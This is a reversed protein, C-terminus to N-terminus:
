RLLEYILRGFISEWGPRDNLPKEGNCLRTILFGRPFKPHSLIVITYIIVFPACALVVLGGVEQVSVEHRKEKNVKIADGRKVMMSRLFM